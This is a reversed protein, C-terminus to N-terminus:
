TTSFPKRPPTGKFPLAAFSPRKAWVITDLFAILKKLNKKEFVRRSLSIKHRYAYEGYVAFYEQRVRRNRKYEKHTNDMCELISNAYESVIEYM